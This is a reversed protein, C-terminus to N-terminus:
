RPKGAGDLLSQTKAILGNLSTMLDGLTDSVQDIEPELGGRPLAESAALGERRPTVGNTYAPAPQVASPLIARLASPATGTPPARDIAPPPAPPEDDPL